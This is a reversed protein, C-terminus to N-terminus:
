YQGGQYPDPNLVRMIDHQNNEFTNDAKIRANQENSGDVLYLLVGTAVWATCDNAGTGPQSCGDWYHDTITNGVITGSAGWGLQIGNQAYDGNSLPGRGTVSSGEIVATALECNATIGNKGYNAVVNSRATLKVDGYDVNNCGGKAYIGLMCGFKGDWNGDISFGQISAVSNYVEVVGKNTSTCKDPKIMAGEEGILTIDKGDILIQEDYTGEAVIITDGDGADDVAAQITCYPLGTEDDCEVGNDVYLTDGFIVPDHITYNNITFEGTGDEVAVGSAYSNTNGFSVGVQKVNKVANTFGDYATVGPYEGGVCDTGTRITVDDDARQGCLNSWKSRDKLSVSLVDETVANLNLSNGRNVM